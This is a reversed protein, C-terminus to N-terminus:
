VSLPLLSVTVGDIDVCQLDAGVGTSFNRAGSARVVVEKDRFPGLESHDDPAIFVENVGVLSAQFSRAFVCANAGDDGGGLGAVARGKLPGYVHIDGDALVEGGDNVGGIVILSAKEAYIQQGSRVTGYHVQARPMATIAPVITPAEVAPAEVHETRNSITGGEVSSSYTLDNSTFVPLGALTSEDGSYNIVGALSLEGAKKMHAVVKKLTDTSNDDSSDFNYLDLLFHRGVRDTEGMSIMLGDIVERVNQTKWTEARVATILLSASYLTSHSALSAAQTMENEYKAKAASIIRSHYTEGSMDNGLWTSLYDQSTRSSRTSFFAPQTGKHVIKPISFICRGLLRVM